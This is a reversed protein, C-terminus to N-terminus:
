FPNTKEVCRVTNGGAWAHLAVFVSIHVDLFVIHVSDLADGPFSLLNLRRKLIFASMVYKVSKVIFLKLFLACCKFNVNLM